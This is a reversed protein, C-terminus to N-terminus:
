RREQHDPSLRPPSYWTRGARTVFAAVSEVSKAVASGLGSRRRTVVLYGRGHREAFLSTLTLPTGIAVPSGPNAVNVAVM